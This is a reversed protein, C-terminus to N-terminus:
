WTDRGRTSPARGQTLGNDLYGEIRYTGAATTYTIETPGLLPNVLRNLALLNEDLEQRTQGTVLLSM